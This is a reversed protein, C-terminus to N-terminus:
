RWSVKSGFLFRIGDTASGGLATCSFLGPLPLLPHPLFRSTPVDLWVCLVSVVQFLCPTATAVAGRHKGVAGELHLRSISGVARHGKAYTTSYCDLWPHLHHVETNYVAGGPTTPSPLGSSAKVQWRGDTVALTGICGM